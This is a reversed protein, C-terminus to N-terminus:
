RGLCSGSITEHWIGMSRAAPRVSDMTRVTANTLLLDLIM